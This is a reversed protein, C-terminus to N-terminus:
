VPSNRTLGAQQVRRNKLYIEMPLISTENELVRTNTFKYAGINSPLCKRQTKEGFQTIKETPVEVASITSRKPRAGMQEDPLLNHDEAAKLIRNAVLKELLKGMM